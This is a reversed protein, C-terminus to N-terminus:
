NLESLYLSIRAFDQKKETLLVLGKDQWSDHRGTTFELALKLIFICSWWVTTIERLLRPFFQLGFLDSNSQNSKCLVWLFCKYCPVNLWLLAFKGLSALVSGSPKLLRAFNTLYLIFYIFYVLIFYVFYVFLVDEIFSLKYCTMCSNSLDHFRGSCFCRQSLGQNKQSLTM